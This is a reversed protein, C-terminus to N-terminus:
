CRKRFPHRLDKWQVYQWGDWPVPPTAIACMKNGSFYLSRGPIIRRCIGKPLRNFLWAVWPWVTVIQYKWRM